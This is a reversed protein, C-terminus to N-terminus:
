GLTHSNKFHKNVLSESTEQIEEETVLWKTKM